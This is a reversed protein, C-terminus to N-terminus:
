SDDVSFWHHIYENTEWLLNSDKDFKAMGVAFPFINPGHFSVLLDGNTYVHAGVPYYSWDDSVSVRRELTTWVNEFGKWAHKIAGDRDTIWAGFGVGGNADKYALNHGLSFILEGGAAASYHSIIPTASTNDKDWFVVGAPLGTDEESLQILAKFAINAEEIIKYPFVEKWKSVFGWGFFLSCIALLFLIKFLRDLM